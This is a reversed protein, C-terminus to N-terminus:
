QCHQSSRICLYCKALGRNYVLWYSQSVKSMQTSYSEEGSPRTAPNPSPATASTVLLVSPNSLSWPSHQLWWQPWPLCSFPTHNWAPLPHPLVWCSNPYPPEASEIFGQGQELHLSTFKAVRDLPFHQLKKGQEFQALCQSMNLVIFVTCLNGNECM